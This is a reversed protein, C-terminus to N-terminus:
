LYRLPRRPCIASQRESLSFNSASKRWRCSCRRCRSCCCRCCCNVSFSTRASYLNQFDYISTYLRIFIPLLFDGVWQASVEREQKIQGEFMSSGVITERDQFSHLIEIWVPVTEKRKRYYTAENTGTGENKRQTVCELALFGLVNKIFINM